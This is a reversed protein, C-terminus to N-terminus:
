AAIEGRNVTRLRSRPQAGTTQSRPVMRTLIARITGHSVHAAAAIERHSLGLRGARTIAQGHEADAIASLRAGAAIAASAAEAIRRGANSRPHTRAPRRRSGTTRRPPSQKWSPPSRAMPTGTLNRTRSAEHVGVTSHCDPHPDALM